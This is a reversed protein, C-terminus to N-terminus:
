IRRRWILLVVALALVAAAALALLLSRQPGARGVPSGESPAPLRLLLAYSGARRPHATALAAVPDRETELIAWGTSTEGLFGIVVTTFGSQTGSGADSRLSLSAADAFTFGTLINGGADTVRVRAAPTGFRFGAPPAPLEALDLSDLYVCAPANLSGAPVNLIARSDPWRITLATSSTDGCVAGVPTGAAPPGPTASAPPLPLAVSPQVPPSASVRPLPTASGPASTAIPSQTVQSPAVPLTASPTPPGAVPPATPLSTPTEAPPTATAQGPATTVQATATTASTLTPTPSLAPTMTLAITSTARRTPTERPVTATTAAWSAPTSSLAFVLLFGLTVPLAASGLRNMPRLENTDPSLPLETPM